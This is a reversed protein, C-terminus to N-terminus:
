GARVRGPVRPTKRGGHSRRQALIRVDDEDTLHTIELRGLQRQFQGLGAVQGEAGQLVLPATCVILLIMSWNGSPCCPCIRVCSEKTSSAATEWVSVAVCIRCLTPHEHLLNQNGFGAM